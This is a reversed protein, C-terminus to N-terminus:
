ERWHFKLPILMGAAQSMVPPPLLSRITATTSVPTVATDARLRFARVQLPDAITVVLAAVAGLGSKLRPRKTLGISKVTSGALQRTTSVSPCPVCTAPVSASSLLLLRPIAPM